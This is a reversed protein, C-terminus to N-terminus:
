RHPADCCPLGQNSAHAHAHPPAVRGAFILRGPELLVQGVLRAARAVAATSGESM